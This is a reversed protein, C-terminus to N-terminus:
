AEFKKIKLNTFSEIKKFANLFLDEEKSIEMEKENILRDTFKVPANKILVIPIQENSEGMLVEAASALDDAIARTTISLTYGFLDQKGRIDEVPEFGAIGLAVGIVGRRLPHVRSDAIIVGLNELHLRAMIKERIQAANEMPAKPFLVVFGEGGSNSKDIGANAILLGEKKTLLVGKVGGLIEDAEDLILQTLEPEMQFLDALKEADKSINKINKLEVIRNQTTAVVSEAYVLIDGDHIRLNRYNEVSRITIDILDDNPMIIPTKIGFLQFQEM